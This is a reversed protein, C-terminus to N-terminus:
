DEVPFVKGCADMAHGKPVSQVYCATKHTWHRNLIDMRRLANGKRKYTKVCSRFTGFQAFTRWKGDKCLRADDSERMVVHM